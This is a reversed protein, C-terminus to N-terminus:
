QQARAWSWHRWPLHMMALAAITFATVPTPTQEGGPKGEPSREVKGQRRVVCLNQINKQRQTKNQTNM